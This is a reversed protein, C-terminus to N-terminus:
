EVPPPEFFGTLSVLKGSSDYEGYSIGESLKTGAADCMDWRSISKGGHALFYKTVFYGGPIQRHFDLMYTELEDWGKTLILPDHYQCGPMLSQAFLKRKEAATEAKWSAAYTEWTQQHDQM